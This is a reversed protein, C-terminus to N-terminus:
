VMAWDARADAPARWESTAAAERYAILLADPLAPSRSVIERLNREDPFDAPPVLRWGESSEVYIASM